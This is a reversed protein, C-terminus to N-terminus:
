RKPEGDVDRMTAGCGRDGSVGPLCGADCVIPLREMKMLVLFNTSPINLSRPPPPPPVLQPSCNQRMAPRRSKNRLLGGYSGNFALEM